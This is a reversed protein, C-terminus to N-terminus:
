SHVDSWDFPQPVPSPSLSEDYPLRSEFYASLITKQGKSPNIKGVLRAQWSRHCSQCRYVGMGRYKLDRSGCDPCSLSTM